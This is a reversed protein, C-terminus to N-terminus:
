VPRGIPEKVDMEALYRQIETVDAITVQGDGDVDAAQESFPSVDAEALKRQIATVDLISVEGSEDADGLLVTVGRDSAPVLVAKIPYNDIAISDTGDPLTKLVEADSGLFAVCDRYARDLLSERLTVMDSWRGDAYYYSEGANIVGCAKAPTQGHPVNVAYPFVDTFSGGQKMTLVVAYREGKKLFYEGKLDIRHSGGFAHSADGQELLRGSTPDDAVDRYIEYHVETDPEDTRYILQYLYSDEEADFVNATKTESDSAESAYLSTMLLDYQDCNTKAYKVADARDFEFAFPMVLSRDYYSLYFYGSDDIGWGAAEPNEYTTRGFRDTTASARDADTVAGWSNKVIFAGNEPPTTNKIVKGSKSIRTFNDKSYNDDYGVITVAHNALYSGNNYAAWTQDNFVSDSVYFAIGVAHGDAIQSKIADVGAQNFAYGGNEDKAAPSPLIYSNRLVAKSSSNRYSANIPLSWDDLQSYGTGGGSRTGNKGRYVFPDVGDISVSEDVPGFGSAYFDCSNVFQGGMNYAANKDASEAASIDYGEGVQSARVKGTEVDDETLAHYLYWVIHKESFNVANNAEGAPTGMGNATLYSTEAAAAISFSWCSGFPSQQKVPTVYNKGGYNRLDISDPLQSDSAAAATGVCGAAALVPVMLASLIMGLHRKRM